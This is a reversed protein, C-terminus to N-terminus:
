QWGEDDLIVDAEAMKAEIVDIFDELVGVVAFGHLSFTFFDEFAAMKALNEVGASESLYFDCSEEL